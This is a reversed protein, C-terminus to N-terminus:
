CTASAWAPNRRRHSPQGASGRSPVLSVSEAYARGWPCMGRRSVLKGLMVPAAEIEFESQNSFPPKSWPWQGANGVTQVPTIGTCSSMAVAVWAIVRLRLRPQGSRPLSGQSLNIWRKRVADQPCGDRQPLDSCPCV